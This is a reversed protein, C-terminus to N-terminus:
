IININSLFFDEKKDTQCEITLYDNFEKINVLVNNVLNTYLTYECELDSKYFNFPNCIESEFEQMLFDEIKQINIDKIYNYSLKNKYSIIQVNNIWYEKICGKKELSYKQILNNLEEKSIKEDFINNTIEKCYHFLFM